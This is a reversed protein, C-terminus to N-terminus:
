IQRGIELVQAHCRASSQDLQERGERVREEKQCIFAMGSKQEEHLHEVRPMCTTTLEEGPQFYEIIDDKVM